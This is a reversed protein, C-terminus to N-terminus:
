LDSSQPQQDTSPSVPPQERAPEPAIPLSPSGLESVATGPTENPTKENLAHWRALQGDESFIIRAIRQLKGKPLPKRAIEQYAAELNDSEEGFWKM